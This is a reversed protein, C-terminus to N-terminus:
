LPVTVVTLLYVGYGLSLGALAAVAVAAARPRAKALAAACPVLLPFAPLLFRPKCSFFNAGGLAVLVLVASYVLLPLPMRDVVALALLVVAAACLAAVAYDSMAAPRLALDRVHHLAFRGFDFVSGWREQVTFYGRASGTQVGVWGVYGCWGLPALLAAAWARRDQPRGARWRQWGDSAAAACVAAAVAVANPRTLGALVALTGATLWRRAVAAYLAWAALATMLPETYAMSLVVAHPLLAWLVVLATATRRGYLRETLAHVGWAAGVAGVWAVLLASAVSGVPLAADVARVTMPYLPFFALDDLRMGPAVWSPVFTGYGWDAIRHYWLGDWELGLLNRPHRHIRHAWLTLALVGAARAVVFAAVAPAARRWSAVVAARPASATPPSAPPPPPPHSPAAPEATIM